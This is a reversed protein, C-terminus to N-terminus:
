PDSRLKYRIFVQQGPSIKKSAQAFVRGGQQVFAANNGYKDRSTNIYRLWSAERKKRADIYKHRKGSRKVVLVYDAKGKDFKKDTSSYTVAGRYEGLIDGRRFVTTAFVGKMKKGGLTTTKIEFYDAFNDPRKWIPSFDKAEKCEARSLVVAM